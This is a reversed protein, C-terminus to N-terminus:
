EGDDDRGDTPEREKIHMKAEMRFMRRDMKTLTRAISSITKTHSDVERASAEVKYYVSSIWFIGSIMSVVLGIPILTNNNLISAPGQSEQNEM